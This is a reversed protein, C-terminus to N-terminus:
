WDGNPPLLLSDFPLDFVAVLFFVALLSTLVRKWRLTGEILSTIGFVMVFGGLVFGIYKWPATSRMQRYSVPTGDASELGALALAAPGAINMLLLSVLIIGFLVAFFGPVATDPNQTKFDDDAQRWVVILQIVSAFLMAAAAVGPVFADGIFTQRRFTEILGTDTDNPIWIAVVILAFIAMFSALLLEKKRTM